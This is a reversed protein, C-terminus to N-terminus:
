MVTSFLRQLVKQMHLQNLNIAKRWTDRSIKSAFNQNTFHWHGKGDESHMYLGSGSADRLVSLLLVNGTFLSQSASESVYCVNQSSYRCIGQTISSNSTTLNTLYLLNNTVAQLFICVRAPLFLLFVGGIAFVLGFAQIVFGYKTLVQEKITAEIHQASFFLFIFQHFCMNNIPLSLFMSSCWLWWVFNYGIIWCM